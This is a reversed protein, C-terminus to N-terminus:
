NECCRRLTPKIKRKRFDRLDKHPVRRERQRQDVPQVSRRERRQMLCETVEPGKCMSSDAQFAKGGGGGGKQSHGEEPIVEKTCSRKDESTIFGSQGSKM